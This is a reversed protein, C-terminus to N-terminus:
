NQVLEFVTQTSRTPYQNNVLLGAAHVLEIYEERTRFSGGCNVLMHMDMVSSHSEFPGREQVVDIMLIKGRRNGHMAIRLNKLITISEQDNWDHICGCLLYVDAAKPITEVDFFSGVVWSIRADPSPNPANKIVSAMDFITAKQIGKYAKVIARTMIGMGGGADVLHNVGGFDYDFPLVNAFPTFVSVMAKTFYAASTPHSEYFKWLDQDYVKSFTEKGSKLSLDLYTFPQFLEELHKVCYHCGSPHDSRLHNGLETLKVSSESNDLSVYGQVRMVRLLRLLMAPQLGVESAVKSIEEGGSPIRDPIDLKVFIHLVRSAMFSATDNLIRVSPPIGREGARKFFDSIKPAAKFVPWSVPRPFEAFNGASPNRKFGVM